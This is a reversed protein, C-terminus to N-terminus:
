RDEWAGSWTHEWAQSAPALEFTTGIGAERARDYLMRSAAIAEIGTGGSDFVTIEDAGQRGPLTGAVIEGLEAYLHEGTIVGEEIAMLFAGADQFARATLDPVYTAREVTTSDIERKHPHYQGIANVHTGPQLVAGNFVPHEATTATVVIDAESVAKRSAEVATVDIELAATMDRAFQDRHSPTPSYVYAEKLPRVETAARLQSQAQYGSGIMGVTEADARALADIGVGGVAGTKLANMSTADLIALPSGTEADFLVNLFWGDQADFGLSFVNWGMARSEPLVAMHDVIYGADTSVKNRPNVPAGEGRQRYGDRVAELYEEFVALELVQESSLFITETM